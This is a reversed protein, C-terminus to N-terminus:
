EHYEGKFGQPPFTEGSRVSRYFRIKGLQMTFVMSATWSPPQISVDYYSSAGLTPDDDGGIALRAATQAELWQQNDDEPWRREGPDDHNFSSFQWPKLVISRVDVGWWGPHAVRNVVVHAVGRMCDYPQDDSERWVCLALLDQQSLDTYPQPQM